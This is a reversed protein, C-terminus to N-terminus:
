SGPRRSILAVRQGIEQQSLRDGHILIRGFVCIVVGPKSSEEELIVELNMRPQSEVEPQPPIYLRRRGIWLVAFLGKNGASLRLDQGICREAKEEHPVLAHFATNHGNAPVM